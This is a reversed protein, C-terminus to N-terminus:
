SSRRRGPPAASSSTTWTWTRRRRRRSRPQLARDVWTVGAGKVHLQKLVIVFPPPAAPSTTPATAPATTPAAPGTAPAAAAVATAPKTTAAKDPSEAQRTAPLRAGAVILSGDAAREARVRPRDVEVAAVTLGAPGFELGRVALGDVGVLETKGDAFRVGDLAVSAGLGDSTRRLAAKLHLDLSGDHLDPAPGTIGFSQLYPVVTATSLGRGTVTADVDLTDPGPTLTGEVTLAEAVGPAALWARFKGPRRDAAPGADLDIRVDTLEVGADTLAIVSPPNTGHDELQLRVDKWVLRGVEV